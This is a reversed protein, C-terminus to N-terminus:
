KKTKDKKKKVGVILFGIILILPVSKMYINQRGIYSIIRKHLPAKPEVQLDRTVSTNNEPEANEKYEEKYSVQAAMEKKRQEEYEKLRRAEEAEDREAFVLLRHSNILRPTCTLLTLLDRDPDLKIAKTDNPLVTDRGFVRYALEELGNNVYIYDGVDLDEAFYLIDADHTGRHGTIVTHKGKGGYPMSTNELMALASRLHNESPGYYLPLQVHIKPIIVTAIPDDQKLADLIGSPENAARFGGEDINKEYEKVANLYGEDQVRQQVYRHQEVVEGELMSDKIVKSVIPYLLALIGILLVLNSLSFLKKWKNKNTPQPPEKPKLKYPRITNNNNTIPTQKM